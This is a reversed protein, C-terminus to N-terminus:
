EVPYRSSYCSKLIARAIVLRQIQNTGEYIQTVTANRMMREARYKKMYGRGGMVQVAHTTVRMAVDSAFYKTMESYHAIPQVHHDYMETVCYLLAHAAEVQTAMEALM